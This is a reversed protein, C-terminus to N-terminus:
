TLIFWDEQFEAFSSVLVLSGAEGHSNEPQYWLYHVTRMIKNYLVMLIYETFLFSLNVVTRQKIQKYVPRIVPKSSCCQSDKEHGEFM